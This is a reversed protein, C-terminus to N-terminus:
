FPLSEPLPLGLMGFIASGFHYLLAFRVFRGSFTVVLFTTVRLKVSGAVAAIALLPPLGTVAACFLTSVAAAELKEMDLKDVRAKLKTSWALLGQGGAYVLTLGVCQSAALLLPLSCGDFRPDGTVGAAVSFGEASVFWFIGSLSFVGFLTLYLPM